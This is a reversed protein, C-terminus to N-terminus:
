SHKDQVSAQLNILDREFLPMCREYYDVDDTCSKVQNSFVTREVAYIFAEDSCDLLFDPIMAARLEGLCAGTGKSMGHNLLTCLADLREENAASLIFKVSLKQFRAALLYLTELSLPEGADAYRSLYMMNTAIDLVPDGLITTKRIDEMEHYLALSADKLTPAFTPNRQSFRVPSSFESWGKMLKCSQYLDDQFKLQYGESHELKDEAIFHLTLGPFERALSYLEQEITEQELSGKAYITETTFLSLNKPDQSIYDSLRTKSLALDFEKLTAKDAGEIYLDYRYDKM